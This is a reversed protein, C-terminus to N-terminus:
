GPTWNAPALTFGSFHFAPAVVCSVLSWPGTSEAAQWVGERVVAQPREGAHLDAGLILSQQVDGAHSLHLLIPSGSHWLWIETADVTHWHSREGRRLLFYIASVAPRDAPAAASRFMEAYWGGEPHPIMGLTQIISDADVPAFTSMGRSYDLRREVPM